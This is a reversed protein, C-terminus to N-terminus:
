NSAYPIGNTMWQFQDYLGTSYSAYSKKILDRMFEAAERETKELVFRERFHKVSEPKFCPLGSDMMLLVMQSLKEAYPRSALFAKICLEEFWQFAQQDTSGGMVALMESTLKFPAREFKIGGPAIDFCFGFDIHLIHGADDIMINGNHRDKFQLLFSIVSYAAMSKVFNNRAAQFRLADENGYKSIFYDYLGNVAERGLMDRSVSNPLVDIVGCGPATATVRYPFVFVDLGVSQFIGRFAAIMQLALVDQRCDDGVKFIASQWVEVTNELALAGHRGSVNAGSVGSGHPSGNTAVKVLATSNNGTGNAVASAANGNVRAAKPNKIRFTAMFPAKAHSQLPKGSKRDIGIVVGDPNSPLYVGVEVKIKRLEEEIKQKKEPKSRKILPKLKGSISTVEDFFSFEREYFERDVPSFSTTMRAMVGDLTPKIADPIQADDDKYANAKMNWIIQHAFLQSFQATELIYRAVYGLADYRLTQVIQPVYFFTIDVSHSELARMAYQILYPHYEYSPMFYTVATIPNIPAWYLLYKLQFSVDHPLAGDLLIPLADPEDIAKSPFNLLLWRVERHVRLNQFRTALEIALSPSEQWATRILPIINEIVGKTNNIGHNVAMHSQAKSPENLPYAWVSLRLQENELLLLLLDEKAQLSKTATTGQHSGIFSVAKVAALVDSLLRIETKLQLNSSGFSWKLTGSFWSLAASLIKDKLRWQAISSITSSFRLVRLGFLIIQFWLERAIPHPKGTTKVADLTVDLMRLFSKQVDVSGLRTANFHSQLFQLLRTHPGLLNHVHQGRKTVSASDTPAFQMEVFFPDPDTVAPNFLGQRRQISVEWHQLVASLIRPEMRPSEHMVGLWLSVGLKISAKSFMAFPISVLYQVIANQDGQCRCLLSAARRLISQIDGLKTPKRLLVREEIHALASVADASESDTNPLFSSRRDIRIFSLWEMSHDPLPEAYRYEQRSTYQAIFNSASNIGIEGFRDLSTMRQDTAPISFGMEMAFSRGLSIHGYAGDDDWESLYTQLLGKVDAPALGIVGSVWAKAKRYLTNLTVHRLSYDDSLEVTVNGRASTFTNNPAYMDTESELCSMWMLSLLELLAFLSSRHCLASPVDRIIRDACIYSAQQVREIRHCCSCFIAALQSAAYQASFSVDTGSLTKRLYKDVVVSTIGEMIGSVDGRRMSPELFYSLAKTCDGADARLSEVLYASQLFIVKRYSLSRIESAKGPVLESLTKKQMAERESSMGRRLVTNLEIDSEVQEGRQEAVLPPSHVAMVRLENIYKKGRPSLPTFGHVVINFWADRIMAHADDDVAGYLALENASMFVALPQLLESIEGAALEIDSEKAHHTQHVDGKSIVDDLMHEWYIDYLPSDKEVHSSIHNRANMVATLLSPRNEVIAVHCIRTFTKLLSRFELQGGTLALIAAAPIIKTDVTTNIKDIKQLLMSQALATIKPDKCASAIGCIAQVVNGYIVSTDEENNMQLSISSGTSQRGQYIQAVSDLNNDSSSLGSAGDALSHENGTSLVNGLTYITTIIADTSLMRLVSALGASAIDISVGRAGSQVIYRPLLKSVNAAYEPSIRCILALSKLVVSSLEDDAMQAPDVLSKELWGMLIDADAADENLRSCNLYGILASSRISFALKLQAASGMSVFDSSAELYNMHDVVANAFIEVSQYDADGSRASIPRLLGEGSLLLDLVQTRKLAPVEAVLLSTAAVLLHMFSQQLLMAGLPRGMEWYHRLHRNWEKVLRNTSDSNRITSFATEVAVLFPESVVKRLRSVLALRGGSRWFDAQAAAADLFGLLAVAITATRIADDLNGDDEGADSAISSNVNSSSGNGNLIRSSSASPPLITDTTRACANLFAWVNDSVAEHVDNHHIGLSLLAATVHFSLSETPSPEVRRFFPSPVFTQVHSDLIYPLLQRTLRQASQGSRVLPAAKCLALLVEFERITMPVRGALSRSAYGNANSPAKAHSPCAKCLRDLDSKEFAATTTAASLAAIKELARQRIDLTAM